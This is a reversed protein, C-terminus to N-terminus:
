KGHEYVLIGSEIEQAVDPANAPDYYTVHVNIGIRSSLETQMDDTECVWAALDCVLGIDLDSEDSFTGDIRSGFLWLKRAFSHEKAWDRVIQATLDIEKKTM